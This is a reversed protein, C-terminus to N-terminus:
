NLLSMTSKSIGKRCHWFDAESLVASTKLKLDLSLFECWEEDIVDSLEVNKTLGSGMGSSIARM